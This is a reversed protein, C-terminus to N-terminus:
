LNICRRGHDPCRAAASRATFDCNWIPCGFTPGPDPVATSGVIVEPRPPVKMLRALQEPTTNHAEEIVELPEVGIKEEVALRVFEGATLGLKRAETQVSAWLDDPMKVARQKM